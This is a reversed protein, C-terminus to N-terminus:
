RPFPESYSVNVYINKKQKSHCISHGGLIVVKGEPVSQMNPTVETKQFLCQLINFTAIKRRVNCKGDEPNIDKYPNPLLCISRAVPLSHCTSTHNTPVSSSPETWKPSVPGPPKPFSSVFNTKNMMQKGEGNLRGGGGGNSVM